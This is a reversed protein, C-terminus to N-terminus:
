IIGEGIDIIFDVVKSAMFVFVLGLVLGGMNTKIQSRGDASAFMYRLGLYLIGGFALYRVVLNITGLVTGAVTNWEKASTLTGTSGQLSTVITEGLYFFIVALVFAPLSEMVQSKGEASSWIYKAGLIVTVCAFVLNGILSIIPVVNNHIFNHGITGIGSNSGGFSSGAEIIENFFSGAHVNITVLSVVFILLLTLIIKKKM